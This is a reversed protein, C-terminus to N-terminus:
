SSWWWEGVDSSIRLRWTTPPARSMAGPLTIPFQTIPFQAGLSRGLLLCTFDSAPQPIPVCAHLGDREWFYNPNIIFRTMTELIIEPWRQGWKTAHSTVVLPPILHIFYMLNSSLQLFFFHLECKLQTKFAIICVHPVFELFLEKPLSSM